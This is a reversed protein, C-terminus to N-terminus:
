GGYDRGCEADIKEASAGIYGGNFVAGACDNECM